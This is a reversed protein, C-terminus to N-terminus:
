PTKKIHKKNEQTFFYEDIKKACIKELDEKQNLCMNVAATYDTTLKLRKIDDGLWCIYLRNQDDERLMKAGFYGMRNLGTIVIEDNIVISFYINGVEYEKLRIRRDMIIEDSFTFELKKKEYALCDDFHIFVSDPKEFCLDVYKKQKMVEYSDKENYEWFVIGSFCSANFQITMFIILGLIFQKM